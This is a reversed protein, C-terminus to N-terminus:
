IEEKGVQIKEKKRFKKREWKFKKRRGLNRGKGSSNKEKKRFKKREWM